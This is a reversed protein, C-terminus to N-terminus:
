LRRQRQGPGCGSSGNPRAWAPTTAGPPPPPAKVHTPTHPYSLGALCSSHTDQVVVLVVVTECVNLAGALNTAAATAAAATAAPGSGGISGGSRRDCTNMPSGGKCGCGHGAVSGCERASVVRGLVARQLLFPAGNSGSTSSAGLRPLLRAPTSRMTQPAKNSAQRATHPQSCPFHVTLQLFLPAHPPQM